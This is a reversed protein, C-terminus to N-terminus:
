GNKESKFTKNYYDIGCSCNNKTESCIFNMCRSIYSDEIQKREIELIPHYRNVFEKGKATHVNFLEPQDEQLMSFLQQVATKREM